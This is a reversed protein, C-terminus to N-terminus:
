RRTGAYLEDIVDITNEDIGGRERIWLNRVCLESRYTTGMLKHYEELTMHEM